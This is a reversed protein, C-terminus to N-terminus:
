PKTAPQPDTDGQAEGTQKAYHDQKKDLSSGPEMRGDPGHDGSHAAKGDGKGSKDDSNRSNDQQIM